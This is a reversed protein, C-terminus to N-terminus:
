GTVSVQHASLEGTARIKGHEFTAVSLTLRGLAGRGRKSLNGCREPNRLIIFRPLIGSGSLLSGTYNASNGTLSLFPNDKEPGYIPASMTFDVTGQAFTSLALLVMSTSIPITKM